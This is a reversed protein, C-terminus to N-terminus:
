RGTSGYGGAMRVTADLDNAWEAEVTPYPLVIMQAVRDGEEYVMGGCFEPRMVRFRASVEGRYGSDIVGVCNALALRTNSVSSRPFILGVYGVPIEVALGFQYIALNREADYECAVATLDLAADGDKAYAPLVADPHLKKFRVRM